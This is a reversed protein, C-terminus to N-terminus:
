LNLLARHTHHLRSCTFMHANFSQLFQKIKKKKNNTSGSILNGMCGSPVFIAAEKGFLKRFRDQLENTTPDEGFVDDGVPASAMAQRMEATPQTLTDSRFDIVRTNENQPSSKSNAYM